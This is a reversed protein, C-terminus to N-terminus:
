IVHRILGGDVRLATGTIASAQRSALFVVANAVEETSALRGILSTPRFQRMFERGVEDGPRDRHEVLERVFHQVGESSTPGPLVSNVTVGTEAGAEAFGRAVALQALKTMGYHVMESPVQVASESSIFIVRGWGREIMGPMYSRTLRVGSMVNVAFFREWEEDPIEFVPRPAFIGVNNILIDVHPAAEAIAACGEATGADAVIGSVQGRSNLRELAADLRESSRGNIIVQAGTALMQEAISFGIGTTSGTILARAGSLDTLM